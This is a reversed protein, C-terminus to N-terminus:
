KEVDFFLPILSGHGKDNFVKLSELIDVVLNQDFDTTMTQFMFLTSSIDGHEGLLTRAALLRLLILVEQEFRSTREHM